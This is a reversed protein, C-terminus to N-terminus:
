RVIPAILKDAVKQVQQVEGRSPRNNKQLFHLWESRWREFEPSNIDQAKISKLNMSQHVLVALEPNRRAIELPIAHFVFRGKEAPHKALYLQRCRYGSSIKTSDFLRIVGNYDKPRHEKEAKQRDEESVEKGSSPLPSASPTPPFPQSDILAEVCSMDQMSNGCSKNVKFGSLLGSTKFSFEVATPNKSHAIFPEWNALVRSDTDIGYAKWEPTTPLSCQALSGAVSTTFALIIATFPGFYNNM